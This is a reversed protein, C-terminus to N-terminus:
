AAGEGLYAARAVPDARVQDPTGRAVIAGDVLVSVTDALRFIADMDHEVLLMPIERRLEALIATLATSEVRGLGAMPEDLLLFKPAGALAIGLELLRREGHSLDGARVRARDALGIRELVAAATRNLAAEGAAPAFFRMSSGAKAQAALAVNEQV